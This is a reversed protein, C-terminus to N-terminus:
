WTINNEKLYKRFSSLMDSDLEKEEFFGKTLVRITNNAEMQEKQTGRTDFLERPIRRRRLFRIVKQREDEKVSRFKPKIMISEADNLKNSNFPDDYTVKRLTQYISFQENKQLIDNDIFRTLCNYLSFEGRETLNLFVLLIPCSFIWKSLKLDNDKDIQNSIWNVNDIFIKDKFNPNNLNINKILHPMNEKIEEILVSNFLIIVRFHMSDGLNSSDPLASINTIAAYLRTSIKGLLYPSIYNLNYEAVWKEMSRMFKENDDKVAVDEIDITTDVMSTANNFMPILYSKLQSLSALIDEDDKAKVKKIIEGISALLTYISYILYGNNNESQQAISLPLFAINQATKSEHSFVDDIRWSILDNRKRKQALGPLFTMGLHHKQSRKEKTASLYASISCSINRLNTDRYLGVYQCLHEVSPSLTFNLDTDSQYGIINLINRIYGIRILYDFILEPYLKVKQSFIFSLLMVTKNLNTDTTTPQLQYADDIAKKNVLTQLIIPILYKENSQLMNIDIGNEYLDCLFAEVIKVHNNNTELISLFQIQTRIPLSLLFIRYAAEQSPNNIGLEKLKSDYYKDIRNNGNLDKENIYININEDKGIADIKEQITMLHIRRQPQIIKLMYQGEMETVLSDYEKIRDLKECENKLLPKGFNKWQQKRIAKSFLQIDGSLITIIYPSTLYKRIMELVPWGRKFDIDIDDLAIIFAKKNLIRLGLEILEHFNSELKRAAYVNQLGNNMIFEPDQWDQYGNNIIDMAPLGKALKKLRNDWETKRLYENSENNLSGDNKLLANSVKNNIESLITLFIHGKEEILTPDILDIVEIGEIGDKDKPTRCEELLSLLFSTKGSGRSGLITITDHLRLHAQRKGEKINDIHQIKEKIWTKAQELEKSHILNTAHFSQANRSANLDIVIANM